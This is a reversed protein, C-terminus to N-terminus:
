SRKTEGKRPLESPPRLYPPGDTYENFTCITIIRDNMSCYFECSLLEYQVILITEQSYFCLYIVMEMNIKMNNM